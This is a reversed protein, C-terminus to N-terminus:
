KELHKLVRKKNDKATCTIRSTEGLSKVASGATLFLQHNVM